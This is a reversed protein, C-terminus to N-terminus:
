VHSDPKMNQVPMQSRLAGKNAIKHQVTDDM